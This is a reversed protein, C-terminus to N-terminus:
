KKTLIKEGDFLLVGHGSGMLNGDLLFKKLNRRLTTDEPLSELCGDYYKVNFIRWLDEYKNSAKSSVIDFLQGFKYINSDKAFVYEFYPPYFLWSTTVVPLIGNKVHDPFFKYAKKLSEVVDEERLPGSSPIHCTLVKDEAAIIDKYVESQTPRMEYELRGLKFCRLRFFIPHWYAVFNGWIGMVAKCEYLKCRLDSMSEWLVEEDIGKACYIYKLSPICSLLVVMDSQYRNVGAKTAFAELMSPFDGSGDCFLFEKIAELDCRLEETAIMKQYCLYLSEIAEDPFDLKKMVSRIM